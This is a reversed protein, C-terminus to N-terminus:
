SSVGRAKPKPAKRVKAVVVTGDLEIAVSFTYRWGLKSSKSCEM